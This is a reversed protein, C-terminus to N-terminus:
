KKSFNQIINVFFHATIKKKKLKKLIPIIMWDPAWDVDFTLIINKPM